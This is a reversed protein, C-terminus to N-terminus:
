AAFSFTPVPRLLFDGVPQPLEVRPTPDVGVGHRSMLPADRDRSREVAVEVGPQIPDSNMRQPGHTRDSAHITAAEELGDGGGGAAGEEVGSSVVEL